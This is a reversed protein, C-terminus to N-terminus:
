FGSKMYMNYSQSRNSIFPFIIQEKSVTLFHLTANCGHVIQQNSQCEGFITEKGEISIDVCLLYTFAKIVM